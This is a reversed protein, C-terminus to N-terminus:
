VSNTKVPACRHMFFCTANFNILMQHLIHLTTERPCLIWWLTPIVWCQWYVYDYHFDNVLRLHVSAFVAEISLTLSLTSFTM